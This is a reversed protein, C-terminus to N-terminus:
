RSRERDFSLSLAGGDRGPVHAAYVRCCQWAVLGGVLILGVLLWVCAWTAPSAFRPLVAEDRSRAYRRVAEARFISRSFTENM